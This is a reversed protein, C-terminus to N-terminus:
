NAPLIILPNIPMGDKRTELHLHDGFARGTAGMEGIVDSTTVEQDVKVFIKSLHAYLTTLGNEHRIYIANGYAYNSYDIAEVKGRTVPYIADGTIGDLDIGPHFLKYGQTISINEVPYRVLQEKPLSIPAEAVINEDVTQASITAVQAQPILTSVTIALAVNAGLLKKVVNKSEFVFRFLRSLKSGKRVHVVERLAPLIPNVSAERRTVLQVHLRKRFPLNYSIKIM